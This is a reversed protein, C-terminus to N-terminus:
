FVNAKGESSVWPDLEEAADAFAAANFAAAMRKAREYAAAGKENFHLTITPTGDHRLTLWVMGDSITAEAVICEVNYMTVNMSAAM